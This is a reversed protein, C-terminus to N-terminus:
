RACVLRGAKDEAPDFMFLRDKGNVRGVNGCWYEVSTHSHRLDGPDKTHCRWYSTVRKVRHILIRSLFLPPSEPWHRSESLGERYCGYETRENQPVCYCKVLKAM